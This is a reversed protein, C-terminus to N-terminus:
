KNKNKKSPLQGLKGCSLLKFTSLSFTPMQSMNPVRVIMHGDWDFTAVYTIICRACSFFDFRREIRSGKGTMAETIIPLDCMSTLVCLGRIKADPGQSILVCSEFYGTCHWAHGFFLPMASDSCIYMVLALSVGPAVTGWALENGM